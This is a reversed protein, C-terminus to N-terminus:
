KIAFPRKTIPMKYSFLGDEYDIYLVITDDYKVDKIICYNFRNIIGEELEKCAQLNINKFVIELIESAIKIVVARRKHPRKSNNKAKWSIRLKENYEHEIKADEPIFKKNKLIKVLNNKFEQVRESINM